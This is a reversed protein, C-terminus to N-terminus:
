SGSQRVDDPRASPGAQSAAVASSAVEGKPSTTSASSKPPTVNSWPAFEPDNAADDPQVLEPPLILGCEPCVPRARNVSLPHIRYLCRPCRMARSRRIPIAFRAILPAFLICALGPVLLAFGFIIRPAYYYWSLLDGDRWGELQWSLIPAISIVVMLVGALRLLISTFFRYRVIDAITPLM